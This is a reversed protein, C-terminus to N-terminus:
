LIRDPHSVAFRIALHASNTECGTFVVQEAGVADLVAVVDRMWDDLVGVRDPAVPDSVGLGRPDFVVCRSLSGIFRVLRIHAPHQGLSDVSILEPLFVHVPEGQGWVQYGIHFGDEAIAYRTEGLTEM